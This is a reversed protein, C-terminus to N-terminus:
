RVTTCRPHALLFPLTLGDDTGLTIDHERGKLIHLESAPSIKKLKKYADESCSSPIISDKDGHVLLAPVKALRDLKLPSIDDMCTAAGMLPAIASFQDPWLTAYYLTGTGGNSFGILYIRSRDINLTPIIEDILARVKAAQDREWWMAGGAHPYLVLYDTRALTEEAGNAADLALGPGGSLYVLLPFARGTPTYDEPVRLIYPSGRYADTLMYRLTAGTVQMRHDASPTAPTCSSNDNPRPNVLRQIRPDSSDKLKSSISQPVRDARRALVALALAQADPTGALASDLDERKTEVSPTVLLTRLVALQTDATSLWNAATEDHRVEQLKLAITEHVRGAFTIYDAEMESKAIVGSAPCFWYRLHVEHADAEAVHCPKDDILEDRVYRFRLGLPNNSRWEDGVKVGTEPLSEIEHMGLLVRSSSERVALWPLKPTGGLSFWNVESSRPEKQALREMFKPRETSLKDKGNERFAVLDGAQRDRQIGVAIGDNLKDIVLVHNTTVLRTEIQVQQGQTRRSVTETYVLHDGPRFSYRWPTTSQQACASPVFLSLTSLPLFFWRAPTRM